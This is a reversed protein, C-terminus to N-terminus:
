GKVAGNTFSKQVQKSLLSYILLTPLTVVMLGAGIMGWNTTYQGILSMIGVTLTKYKAETVFTIAFMLENWSFLYTFIAVTALAPKTLPLIIHFFTQYINCGEIFASEEMEVPITYLFTSLIYIAMPLSFGVYPLILAAYSNYLNLNKLIVFLPLLAAHIPLMMGMLFYTLVGSQFKWRMRTIGYAAMSALFLTLIITVSTVIISNLFYHAVDGKSIVEIYNSFMWNKPFGLINEGFIEENSKLSYSLLWILPFIQIAAFVILSFMIFKKIISEKLHM